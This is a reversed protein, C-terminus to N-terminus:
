DHGADATRSRLVFLRGLLSRDTAVLTALGALGGLVVMAVLMGAPAIGFPRLAQRAALSALAVSAAGVVAPILAGGLTRPRVGGVRMLLWVNVPAYLGAFVLTRVLAIAWAQGAADPATVLRGALLFAVLNVTALCWTVAAMVGARDTAQLLPGLLLTVSRLAGLLCLVRLVGAAAGWEPGLLDLLVGGTAALGALAPAALSASARLSTVLARALAAGNSALRSLEPLAVHTVPRSTLEVVMDVLREALRYLGVATPGFFLGLLLSDSRRHAFVGIGNLLVRGSFPYLARAAAWSFRRRPRWSCSLWLALLEILAATLHQAVLAWVGAGALALAVGALGGGCVAANTRIALARFAMRKQLLALQVVALGRLVLLASLARIVGGLEPTRNVRAWWAGALAGTGALLLCSALATWFAADLRDPDDDRDRILASTLGQEVFLELFHVYILAMAVLGYAAPGLLAALLFAIAASVIERGWTMVFAWRVASRVPQAEM